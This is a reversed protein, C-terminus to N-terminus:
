IAMAYIGEGCLTARYFDTWESNNLFYFPETKVVTYICASIRLAFTTDGLRGVRTAWIIQRGLRQCGPSHYLKSESGHPQAYFSHSETLLSLVHHWTCPLKYCVAVWLPTFVSRFNGTAAAAIRGSSCHRVWSNQCSEPNHCSLRRGEAPRSILVLWLATISQPQPTFVPIIWDVQPYVHPHCTFSHWGENVRAM